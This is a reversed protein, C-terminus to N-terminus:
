RWPASISKVTSQALAAVAHLQANCSALPALEGSDAFCMPAGSPDHRLQFSRVVSPRSTKGNCMALPALEGDAAFCMPAGSPDADLVYSESEPLLHACDTLPALMGESDACMPAGSPDHVLRNEASALSPVLVLAITIVVPKM